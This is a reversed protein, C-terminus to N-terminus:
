FKRGLKDYIVGDVNFDLLWINELGNICRRNGWNEPSTLGFDIFGDGKGNKQWGVLAGAETMDIGLADYVENLFVHGRRNLKENFISQQHILYAKNYEPSKDWKPSSEDFFKAYESYWPAGTKKDNKMEEREKDTLSELKKEAEEIGFFLNKDEEDGYKERVRKRYADYSGKLANYAATLAVNRKNMIKYSALICVFGLAIFGIAPIYNKVVKVATQSIVVTKDHAVDKDTYKGELEPHENIANEFSEIQKKADDIMEPLRLTEKCALVTGTILSAGGAVLLLVPSNKKTTLVAKSAKRSIATGIKSALAFKM